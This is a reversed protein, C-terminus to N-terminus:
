VGGVGGGSFGLDPTVVTCLSVSLVSHTSFRLKCGVVWGPVCVCLVCVGRLPPGQLVCCSCCKGHVLPSRSFPGLNAVSEGHNMGILVPKHQAKSFICLVELTLQSMESSTDPCFTENNYSFTPKTSYTLTMPKCLLLLIPVRIGFAIGPSQPQLPSLQRPCLGGRLHVVQTATERRSHNRM